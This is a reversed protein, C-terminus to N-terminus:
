VKRDGSAPEPLDNRHSAIGVLLLSLLLDLLYLLQDVSHEKQSREPLVLAGSVRHTGLAVFVPIPYPEFSTGPTNRTELRASFVLVPYPLM